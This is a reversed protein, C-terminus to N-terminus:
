SLKSNTMSIYKQLLHVICVYKLSPCKQQFHCILGLVSLQLKKLGCSRQVDKLIRLMCNLVAVKERLDTKEIFM